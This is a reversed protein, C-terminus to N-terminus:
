STGYISQMMQNGGGNVAQDVAKGWEVLNYCKVGFFILM